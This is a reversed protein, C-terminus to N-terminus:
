FSRGSRGQEESEEPETGRRSAVAPAGLPLDLTRLLQQREEHPLDKRAAIDKDIEERDGEFTARELSRKKNLYQIEVRFRDKGLKRMTLSDFTIWEQPQAARGEVAGTQHPMTGHQMPREQEAARGQGETEGSEGAQAGAREGLTAKVTIPKGARVIGLTVEAGPKQEQVLGRLQEPSYLEQDDFRTLIDHVKLGDKAAPSNDAVDTVVVGQGRALSEHLHSALAPSVHEVGIGLYPSPQLHEGPATAGSEAKEAGYSIAAFSGLGLGLALLTAARGVSTRQTKM